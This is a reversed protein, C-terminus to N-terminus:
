YWTAALQWPVRSCRSIRAPKGTCRVVSLRLRLQERMQGVGGNNNIETLITQGHLAFVSIFEDIETESLGARRLIAIDYDPLSRRSFGKFLAERHDFVIRDLGSEQLLVLLDGIQEVGSNIEKNPSQELDRRKTADPASVIM